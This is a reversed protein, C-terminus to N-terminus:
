AVGNHNKNDTRMLNCVSKLECTGRMESVQSTRKSLGLSFKSKIQPSISIDNEPVNVAFSCPATVPALGVHPQVVTLKGREATVLM